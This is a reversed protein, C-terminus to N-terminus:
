LLAPDNSPIADPERSARWLAYGIAAEGVGASRALRAAATEDTEAAALLGSAAADCLAPLAPAEASPRGDLRAAALSEAPPFVTTLTGDRRPLREGFRQALAAAPSAHGSLGEGLAARVFAEFPDWAGPVRLGPRRAILPGLIADARFQRALISPDAALDFLARVRSVISLLAAPEANRVRVVLSGVREDHA